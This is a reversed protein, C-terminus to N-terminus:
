EGAVAKPLAVDLDIVSLGPPAIREQSQLMSASVVHKGDPSFTPDAEYFGFATGDDRRVVGPAIIHSTKGDISVIAISRGHAFVVHNGDPSFEPEKTGGSQLRGEIAKYADDSILRRLGTGDANVIWPELLFDIAGEPKPFGHKRRFEPDVHVGIVEFVIRKGDKSYRPRHVTCVADNNTEVRPIKVLVTSELEQDTRGRLKGTRLEDCAAFIITEGDPHVDPTRAAKAGKAVVASIIGGEVPVIGITNYFQQNPNPSTGEFLIHKGDPFVRPTGIYWNGRNRPSVKASPDFLPRAVILEAPTAGDVPVKWLGFVGAVKAAVVVHKGDPLFVPDRVMGVKSQRLFIRRIGLRKSVQEGDAVYEADNGKPALLAPQSAPRSAPQSAAIEQPADVKQETDGAPEQCALALLACPALILVLLPSAGVESM